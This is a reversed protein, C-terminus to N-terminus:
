GLALPRPPDQRKSASHRSHTTRQLGMWIELREAYAELSFRQHGQRRVETRNMQCVHSLAAAAQDLDGPRILFGTTGNEVIEAPGGANYAVVPVGCCIAEAVCNGFAEVWKPTMLLASCHQFQQLLTQHPVFGQWQLISPPFERTLAQRYDSDQEFGWIKLPMDARVAIRIADELGKEPSIRGVWAISGDGDPSFPFQALPYGNALTTVPRSFSFTNAAAHTRFAIREPATHNLRQLANAVQQNENAMSILHFVPTPLFPTLWIPLWDYALNLICDVDDQHAQAASWMRSLVCDDDCFFRTNPAHVQCSQQLEGDIAILKADVDADLQSGKPAIVSVEHQRHTLARIIHHLSVDVGGGEGQGIPKVPTTVILVKM